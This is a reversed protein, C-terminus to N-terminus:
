SDNESASTDSTQSSSASRAQGIVKMPNVPRKPPSARFAATPKIAPKDAAPKVLGAGNKPQSVAEKKPPEVLSMSVKTVQKMPNLEDALQQIEQIPRLEEEFQETFENIITRLQYAYKGIERMVQPLREPGLVVLLLVVIVLLEGMGINFM